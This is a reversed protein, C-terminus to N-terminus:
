TWDDYGGAKPAPKGSLRETCETLLDDHSKRAAKSFFLVKPLAQVLALVERGEDMRGLEALTLCHNCLVVFDQPLEARVEEILPLAEDPRGLKRLALAQNVVAVQRHISSGLDAAMSFLKLAEQYDGKDIHLIGLCNLRQSTEGQVDIAERVDRIAGELNGEKARKLARVCVVDRYRFYNLLFLGVVLILFLAAFGLGGVALWINSQLPPGAKPHRPAILYTILAVIAILFIWVYAPTTSKAPKKVPQSRPFWRDRLVLLLVPVVFIATLVVIGVVSSSREQM